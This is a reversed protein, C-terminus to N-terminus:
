GAEELQAFAREFLEEPQAGVVLLRGDLVFAPVGTAGISVAQQTSAAVVDAFRDTALLEEVEDDPLGVARAHRRLVDHDGLDEGHTWYAEMLADHLEDHRGHARALEGLRLADLTRSVVHPPPNNALGREALL